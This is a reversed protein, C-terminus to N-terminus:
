FNVLYKAYDVNKTHSIAGTTAVQSQAGDNKKVVTGMDALASATYSAAAAGGGGFVYTFWKSGAMASADIVLDTLDTATSLSAKEALYALEAHEFTALVTPIESVKAKVSADMFKPIAIAALIGIIVIVVMLEILTFGKTNKTTKMFIEQTLSFFYPQESLLIV